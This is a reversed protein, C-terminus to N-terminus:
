FDCVLLFRCLYLVPNGYLWPADSIPNLIRPDERAIPGLEPILDFHAISILIRADITSTKTSNSHVPKNAWASLSSHSPFTALFLIQSIWNSLCFFPFGYLLLGAPSYWSRSGSFYPFHLNFLPEQIQCHLGQFHCVLNLLTSPVSIVSSHGSTCTSPTHTHTLPCPHPCEIWFDLFESIPRNLLGWTLFFFFCLM